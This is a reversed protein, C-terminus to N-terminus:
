LSYPKTEKKGSAVRHFFKTNNDGRLLWTEHSRKFWHLEEVDMIEFLEVKLDIRKKVLDFTLPGIEEHEEMEMILREIEQKKKKRSGALNYGWGKLFKKVKRLKFLVRDLANRDRTPSMWIKKVKPLFDAHGLWSLEFRFERGKWLSHNGSELVLPNHYSFDRQKKQVL